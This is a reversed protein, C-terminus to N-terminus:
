PTPENWPLTAWIRRALNAAHVPQRALHWHIGETALQLHRPARFVALAGAERLAEHLEVADAALLGVARAAPDLRELRALWRLVDGAGAAAVELAVLSGPMQALHRNVEPLTQVERLTVPEGTRQLGCQLAVAWRRSQECVIVGASRM